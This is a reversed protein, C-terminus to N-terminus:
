NRVAAKAVAVPKIDPQQEKKRTVKATTKTSTIATKKPKAASSKTSVPAETKEQKAPTQTPSKEKKM